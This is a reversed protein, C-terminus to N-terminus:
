SSFFESCAITNKFAKWNEKKKTDIAEPWMEESWCWLTWIVLKYQFWHEGQWYGGLLSIITKTNIWLRPLVSPFCLCEWRCVCVAPILVKTFLSWPGLLSAWICPCTPLQSYYRSVPQTSSFPIVHILTPKQHWSSSSTEPFFTM